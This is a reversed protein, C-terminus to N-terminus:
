RRGEVNGREFFAVVVALYQEDIEATARMFNHSGGRQQEFRAYRVPNKPGSTEGGYSIEGKFGSGTSKEINQQGSPQLSRTDIHVDRQTLAFNQALVAAMALLDPGDFGDQIRRLERDADRGNVEVRIRTM